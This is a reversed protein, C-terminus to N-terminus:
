AQEQFAQEQFAQEQFAQEQFAQEQFAQEQFAQEMGLQCEEGPMGRWGTLVSKFDSPSYQPVVEEVFQQVKPVSRRLRHEDHGEGYLVHPIEIADVEDAVFFALAIEAM